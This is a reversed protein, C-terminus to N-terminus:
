REALFSRWGGLHTIERSGEPVASECLFGTVRRGNALEIKGFGLMGPTAGDRFHRIGNRPSQAFKKAFTASVTSL